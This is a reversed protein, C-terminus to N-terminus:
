GFFCGHKDEQIEKLIKHLTKSKPFPPYSEWKGNARMWYLRWEKKSIIFRIKAFPLKQIREQDNWVPRVEFLIANKGDFSYEFDLQRRLDLDEPRLSDVYDRLLSENIDVISKTM